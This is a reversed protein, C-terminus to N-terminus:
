VLPKKISLALCSFQSYWKKFDKPIVRSLSHVGLRGVAFRNSYGSCWRAPVLTVDDVNKPKCRVRFELLRLFWLFMSIKESESFRRESSCALLVLNIVFTRIRRMRTQLTMTGCLPNVVIISDKNELLKIRRNNTRKIM